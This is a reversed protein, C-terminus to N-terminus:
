KEDKERDITVFPKTMRLTLSAFTEFSVITMDLRQTPGTM